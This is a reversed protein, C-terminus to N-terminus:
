HSESSTRALTGTEIKPEPKQGQRLEAAVGKLWPRAPPAATSARAAILEDTIQHLQRLV